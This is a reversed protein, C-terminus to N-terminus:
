PRGAGAPARDWFRTLAEFRRDFLDLRQTMWGPRVRIETGLELLQDTAADYAPWEPNGDSSPVGSRAFSAWYDSVASAMRRDEDQVGPVSGFASFVYPVDAGHNAGPAQGRRAAGVYSFWYLYVPSDIGQRQRALWRAPAVFASDGYVRLAWLPDNDADYLKRAEDAFRGLLQEIMREGVGFTRALSGEFSNSGLLLPVDHRQGARFRDSPDDVLLRGDILPAVRVGLAQKPVIAELPLARLAAATTADVGDVGHESAFQAGQSEASEALRPGVGPRRRNLHRLPGHGGGSQSIAKHFLGESADATLLMLVSAGGASEGFITVNAPDGGFAAINRQVWGLAAIQDMLGYNGLPEQPHDAAAEATLAPHGFWGLRGLRYNITVVVTGRQALETGDYFPWSGSGVVYAGGHIWVMVPLAEADDGRVPAWVNLTLCDESIEGLMGPRDARAAQPCAPGFEEALRVGQWKEVPQPARWRLGGVPPAAFPIGRFIEVDGAAVGRVAGSDLAATPDQAVVGAASLLCSLLTALTRTRASDPLKM